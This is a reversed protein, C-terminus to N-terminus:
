DLFEGGNLSGSPKSGHECSGFGNGIRFWIFGNVDEWGTEELDMRIDEWRHSRRGLHDRGKLSETQIKYLNRMDGM